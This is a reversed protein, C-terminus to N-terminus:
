FSPINLIIEEFCFKNHLFNFEEFDNKMSQEEIINHFLSTQHITGNLHLECAARIASKDKNEYTKNKKRKRTKQKLQQIFLCVTSKHGRRGRIVVEVPNSFVM